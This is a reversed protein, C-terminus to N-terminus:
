DFYDIESFYTNTSYQGLEDLDSLAASATKCNLCDNIIEAIWNAMSQPSVKDEKIRQIYRVCDISYELEGDRSVKVIGGQQTIDLKKVKKKAM